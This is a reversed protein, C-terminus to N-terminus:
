GYVIVARAEEGREFAALADNVQELSCNRGIMPDLRLAGSVVLGALLPLDRPPVCSGYWSGMVTREEVVMTLADVGVRADPPAMGVLVARGGPSTLRTALEITSPRGLAEFVADAGDPVV